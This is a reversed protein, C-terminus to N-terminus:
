PYEGEVGCTAPRRRLPRPWDLWECDRGHIHVDATPERMGEFPRAVLVALNKRIDDMSASVEFLRGWVRRDYERARERRLWSRLASQHAM